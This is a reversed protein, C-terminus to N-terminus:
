HSNVIVSWAHYSMSISVASQCASALPNSSGQPEHGTQAVYQSETEVEVFFFRVVFFRPATARAQLGLVKPPQPLLIAQVQIASAATLQSRM